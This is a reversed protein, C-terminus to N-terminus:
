RGCCQKYKKGSSCPCPDNRGVKNTLTPILEGDVYFWRGEELLFRSREHLVGTRGDRALWRAVFEVNGIQDRESGASTHRIELGCWVVDDNELNLMIPCTGPHWTDCLYNSLKLVYASYRSRMLTEPTPAPFGNHYRGCCAEYTHGSCCPCLETSSM